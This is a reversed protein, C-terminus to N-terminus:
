LNILNDIRSGVRIYSKVLKDTNDLTLHVSPRTGFGLLEGSNGSIHIATGERLGVVFNKVSQKNHLTRNYQLFETLRMDRTEGQFGPTVINNYHANIQFPTTNLSEFSEPFVVPMDNTTKITPGHIVTGASVGIFPVGQNIKQKIISLVDNDYINKLLNFTNGGTFYIAQADMIADKQEKPSITPDLMKIDINIKRFTEKVEPLFESMLHTNVGDRVNPYAYPILLIDTVNLPNLFKQLIPLAYVLHKGGAMKSNSFLLVNKSPSPGLTINHYSFYYNYFYEIYEFLFGSNLFLYYLIGLLILILIINKWKQRFLTKLSKKINM